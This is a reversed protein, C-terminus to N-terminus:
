GPMGSVPLMGSGLFSSSFHARHAARVGADQQCPPPLPTRSMTRILSARMLPVAYPV